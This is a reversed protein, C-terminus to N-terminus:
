FNPREAGSGILKKIRVFIHIQLMMPFLAYLQHYVYM